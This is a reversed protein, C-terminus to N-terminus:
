CPQSTTGQAGVILAHWSPLEFGMEGVSNRAAQAAEALCQAETGGDLEFLFEDAIEPHRVRIMPSCDAWSAWYAPVRMRAVSRLGLGGLSSTHRSRSSGTYM